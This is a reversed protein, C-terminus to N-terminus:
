ACGCRRGGAGGVWGFFAVVEAGPFDGVLVAADAGSFVVDGAVPFVNTVTAHGFGSRCIITTDPWPVAGAVDVPM